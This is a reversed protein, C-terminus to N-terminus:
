LQLMDIYVKLLAAGFMTKTVWLKESKYYDTIIKPVTTEGLAM